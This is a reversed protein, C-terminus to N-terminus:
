RSMLVSRVINPGLGRAFTKIGEEKGIQVLGQLANRYRNRQLPDKAGDACM